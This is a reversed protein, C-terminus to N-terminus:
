WWRRCWRWSGDYGCRRRRMLRSSKPLVSAARAEPLSIGRLQEDVVTAVIDRGVSGLERGTIKEIVVIAHPGEVLVGTYILYGALM